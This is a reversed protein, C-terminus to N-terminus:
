NEPATPHNPKIQESHSYLAVLRAILVTLCLVGTTSEVMLLMRAPKSLATFINEILDGHDLDTIFPYTVVLLILAILFQRMSVRLFEKKAPVTATSPKEPIPETMIQPPLM